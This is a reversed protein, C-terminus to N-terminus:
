TQTNGNRCRVKFIPNPVVLTMWFDAVTDYPTGEYDMESYKFTMFELSKCPPEIGHDKSLLINSAMEKMQEATTCVPTDNSQLYYPPSCGVKKIIVDMVHEDYNQSDKCKKRRKFIEVNEVTFVKEYTSGNPNRSSPWIYKIFTSTRLVQNPYHFMVFFDWLIPRM